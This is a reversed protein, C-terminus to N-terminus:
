VAGLPVTQDLPVTPDPDESNTVGGTYKLCIM